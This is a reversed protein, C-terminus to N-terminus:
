EGIFIVNATCCLPITQHYHVIMLFCDGSELKIPLCDALVMAFSMQMEVIPIVILTQCATIM